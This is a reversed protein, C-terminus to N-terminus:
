SPRLSPKSVVLYADHTEVVSEVAPDEHGPLVVFRDPASVAREYEGLPLWLAQACGPDDCECLFAEVDHSTAGGEIDLRVRRANRAQFAQEDDEAKGIRDQWDAAM